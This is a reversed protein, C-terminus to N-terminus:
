LVRRGTSTEQNRPGMNRLEKSQKRKGEKDGQPCDLGLLPFAAIPIGTDRSSCFSQAPLDDSSLCDLGLQGAYPIASVAV